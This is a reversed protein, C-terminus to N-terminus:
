RNTRASEEKITHMNNSHNHEQTRTTMGERVRLKITIMQTLSQSVGFKHLNRVFPNSILFFVAVNLNSRQIVLSPNFAVRSRLLDGCGLTPKPQVV